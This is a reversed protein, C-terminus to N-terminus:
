SLSKFGEKADGSKLKYLHSSGLKPSTILVEITYFSMISFSLSFMSSFAFMHRPYVKKLANSLGPASSLLFIGKVLQYITLKQSLSIILITLSAKLMHELQYNSLFNM